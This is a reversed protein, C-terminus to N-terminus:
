VTRIANSLGSVYPYTHYKSENLTNPSPNQPINRSLTLKTKALPNEAKFCQMMNTELTAMSLLTMGICFAEAAQKDVCRPYEPYDSYKTSTLFGILEPSIFAKSDGHLRYEEFHDLLGPM